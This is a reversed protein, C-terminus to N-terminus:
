AFFTRSAVVNITGNFQANGVAHHLREDLLCTLKKFFSFFFHLIKGMYRVNEGCGVDGARCNYM